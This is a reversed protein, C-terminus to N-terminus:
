IGRKCHVMTSIWIEFTKKLHMNILLLDKNFYDLFSSALLKVVCKYKGDLMCSGFLEVTPSLKIHCLHSQEYINRIEANLLSPFDIVLWDARSWIRNDSLVESM